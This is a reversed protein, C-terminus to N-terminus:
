LAYLEELARNFLEPTLRKYHWDCDNEAFSVGKGKITRAVIAKPKRSEYSLLRKLTRVDHGDCEAADFGFAQLKPVLPELNLIDENRGMAQFGNADIILTLNHLKHHAAFLAAEWMTGENMEGDGAICYVRQHTGLRLAGLALGTAVPFGHGLSGSTVELGPIGEESCGKLRAGPKLYSDLEAQELWGMRAFAAYLAMVGHGKSLCLYDRNPDNPGQIRMIQGYLVSVIEVLSMACGLHACQAGYAMRLITERILKPDLQKERSM